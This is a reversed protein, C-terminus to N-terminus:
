IEILINKSKSFKILIIYTVLFNTKSKVQPYVLLNCSEANVPQTFSIMPLAQYTLILIVYNNSM